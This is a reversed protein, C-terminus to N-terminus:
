VRASSDPADSRPAPQTSVPATVGRDHDHRDRGRAAASRIALTRQDGAQHAWTDAHSAGLGGHPDEEPEDDGRRPPEEAVPDGGARLLEPRLHRHNRRTTM